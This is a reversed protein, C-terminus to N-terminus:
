VCLLSEKFFNVKYLHEKPLLVPYDIFRAQGYEDKGRYVSYDICRQEIEGDVEVEITEKNM